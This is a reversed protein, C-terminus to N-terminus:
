HRRLSVLAWAVILSKINKTLSLGSKLLGAVLNHIQDWQQCSALDYSHTSPLKNLYPPSATRWTHVRTRGAHVRTKCDVLSTQCVMLLTQHSSLLHRTSPPSSGSSLYAKPAANLM